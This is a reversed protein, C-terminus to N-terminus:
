NNLQSGVGVDGGLVVARDLVILDNLAHSPHPQYYKQVLNILNGLDVM